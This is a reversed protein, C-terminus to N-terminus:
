RMLSKVILKLATKVGTAFNQGKSLTAKSYYVSVPIEKFRLKKEAMKWVLESCFEYGSASIPITRATKASFAKLGSQSDSVWTWSIFFTVLNGVFNFIRRLFPIKNKKNLFRSGLCIDVQDHLLPEILAEIDEPDHQEDADLTVIIDAGLLLAADIGTQTAAGVGCNMLHSIAVVKEERAIELTADESGDNVVVINQYGLSELQKLIDRLTRAENFAPIVIFIKKM